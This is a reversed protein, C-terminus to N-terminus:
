ARAIHLTRTLRKMWGAREVAPSNAPITAQQEHRIREILRQLSAAQRREDLKANANIELNFTIFPPTM